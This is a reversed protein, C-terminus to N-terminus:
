KGNRRRGNRGDPLHLPCADACQAARNRMACYGGGLVDEYMFSTCSGCRIKREKRSM